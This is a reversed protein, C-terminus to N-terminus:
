TLYNDIKNLTNCFAQSVKLAWEWREEPVTDYDTTGLHNGDDSFLIIKDEPGDEASAWGLSGEMKSGKHVLSIEYHVVGDPSRSNFEEDEDLESALEEMILVKWEMNKQAELM